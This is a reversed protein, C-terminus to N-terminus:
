LPNLSRPFVTHLFCDTDLLPLCHLDKMTVIIPPSDKKERDWPKKILHNSMAMYRYSHSKKKKLYSSQDVYLCNGKHACIVQKVQRARMTKLAVILCFYWQMGKLVKNSLKKFFSNYITLDPDTVGSEYEFTNVASSAEM